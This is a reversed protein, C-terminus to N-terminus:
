PVPLDKNDNGFCFATTSGARCAYEWEAETPLRYRDTKEIQNLKKIFEQADNWSVKEVPCSGGCSTFMSPNNGMVHSWQWQTVETIQIYYPRTLTVPHQPGEDSYWKADGGFHDAVEEPSLGSGMLFSGPQIFVFKMELSNIFEKAPPTNEQGISETLLSASLILILVLTTLVKLISQM